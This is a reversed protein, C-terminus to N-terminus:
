GKENNYIQICIYKYVGSIEKSAKGKDNFEQVALGMNQSRFFDKRNGIAVPCLPINLEETLKKFDDLECGRPSVMNLIVSYKTDHKQLAKITDQMATVDFVAPKTPILVFDSVRAVDYSIDRQIAAGDIIIVDTGSDEAGKIMANLRIPQISVVAPYDQQRADAWFCSTAQPDLDLIAVKKKKKEFAVALCTSLTTKGVGGKQNLIGIVKMQYVCICKFKYSQICNYMFFFICTYM